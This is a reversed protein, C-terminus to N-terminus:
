EANKTLSLVTFAIMTFIWVLGSVVYIDNTRWLMGAADAITANSTQTLINLPTGSVIVAFFVAAQLWYGRSMAQVQAYDNQRRRLYLAFMLFFVFITLFWGMFSSFPVGFYNGGQQWNWLHKITSAIPDFSLDQSIM